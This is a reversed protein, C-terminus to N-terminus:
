NRQPCGQAGGQSLHELVVHPPDGDDVVVVVVEPDEGRIAEVGGHPTRHSPVGDFGSRSGARRPDFWLRRPVCRPGSLLSFGHWHRHPVTLIMESSAQPNAYLSACVSTPRHMSM